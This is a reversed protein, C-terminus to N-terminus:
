LKSALRQVALTDEYCYDCIEDIRGDLYADYVTAGTIDGEKVPINFYACADKLSVYESYKGYWM